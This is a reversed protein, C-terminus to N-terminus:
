GTNRMAGSLANITLLLEVQLKAALKDDSDKAKRWNKLISVQKEHLSQMLSARLQNSNFHNKRRESFPREILYSMHDKVLALEKKFQDAFKTRLVQDEVLDLYLEFVNEDTAALSTDINTFVYRVFADTKLAKKLKEYAEPREAKLESLASGVGYWSTMHVRSQAWSFVWPIARLDALTNMGTRKAPRSGIKSNEIADIPTAQRFFAIFGEQNMLNEYYHKSSNALWELTDALPHFQKKSHKDRLYKNLTNAALLELNFAANVKNAYKQAITEGQETLRLDGNPAGHPMAKIFYHTPGAGRSISGGKGHFFRIKVRFEDGVMVLKYQAKYLNWQSAMIGGDKNSDSYGVMIQQTPQNQNNRSQIHKLTRRTIPHALFQRMIEEGNELDEITELLPVVPIESVMGEDSIFTLGTERALLYVVLLDSISRTMSVIFSGICNFGYKKSYFAIARYCEMVATAEPGLVAEPHTFPRSSTLEKNLFAVRKEESWESFNTESMQAAELLQEVAKDHFASNQRIDLAALHFGFADVTRIVSTVDDYAITKADYAVLARQLLQLDEKLKASHLYAGPHESLKTAHGRALDIPLKYLMLNVLQRFAEKENRELAEKGKKGLEKSMEKVRAQLEKTSDSIELSFSIRKVLQLLKRRLVVFANLRLQMLTHSTLEATVLPHGDRDGGVWDGFTVRPFNHHISIEETDLGVYEAAQLMRRDLIPIVEPFVNVLYHLINRLEDKVHPKELYIEGTKWLRYLTQEINKEIERNEASTFIPNEREVMLLYLERYHELVTARKAETPHATLVPEIAIESLSNLIEKKDIGQDILDQFNKAWLGNISELSEDELKRRNQVAGNIEVLNVLQFILSYLQVHKPTIESIELQHTSIWPIEGAIAKESNKELVSKLSLLLFELDLYPKGINTKVQDFTEKLTTM